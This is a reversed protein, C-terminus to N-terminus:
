YLMAKKRKKVKMIKLLFAIFALVFFKVKKIRIELWRFYDHGNEFTTM